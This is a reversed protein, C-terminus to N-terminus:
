AEHSREVIRLWEPVGPGDLADLELRYVTSGPETEGGDVAVFGRHSYFERAPANKASPIFTGCLRRVNAARARAAIHALLADEVGRGLVRCSLLLSDIDWCESDDTRVIAVGTLGLDGFRDAVRVDVIHWQDPADAMARVQSETYRRTTLNFQNTKNILQAIRPISFTSAEGFSVSIDLSDLHSGLEGAAAGGEFTRRAQAEVYTRM